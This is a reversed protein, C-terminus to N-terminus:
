NIGEVALDFSVCPSNNAQSTIRISVTGDFSVFRAPDSFEYRGSKPSDLKIWEGNRNLAELTISSTILPTDLSLRTVRMTALDEPLQFELVASGNNVAVQTGPGCIGVAGETNVVRATVSGAPLRITGSPYEVKLAAIVLSTQQTAWRAGAIQVEIPSVRTWGILTPRNPAQAPGTYSSYYNSLLQQRMQAERSPGTPGPNRMLDEVLFYPFPSGGSQLVADISRSEGAPLDGIRAYSNGLVLMADTMHGPLRNVLTGKVRDGDVLINSEIHWSEPVASEIQFAQMSWQNIQVGRVQVPDGEIIETSTSGFSASVTRFPDGGPTIPVPLSQRPLNLTYATREPSFIGIYSQVPEAAHTNLTIISIKNIIVDSGRVVYAFVFASAAFLITLAPITVWGWALKRLRRLIFYNVPGVMLIYVALLGALWGISPLELAPMNQLAYVTNNARAIRPSVDVPAGAPYASGPTLLKEWFRAAGSWADFPSAALDLAAYNVNGDGVRKNTLLVRNDQEIVTGGTFSTWTAVFPGPVRVDAEGFKGLATLAQIETTANGSRFERVLDDPLGALTRTASAGGGIILRGGQEVWTQLARAQEPALESTDIGSVILGDLVRLGEPREPIDSLTIPITKVSRTQVSAPIGKFFGSATSTLKLGTLANFAQPRPAIIGVLYDVNREVTVEVTQSDLERPSNPNSVDLLRIRLARAFSPPQTYIVVRKRAGTPLEVPVVYATQANADTVEARLEARVAAGDNALTVRVPLWEGFKFHGRYFPEAQMTIGPTPAAAISFCLVVLAFIFHVQRCQLHGM